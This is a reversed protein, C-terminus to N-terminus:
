RPLGPDGWKIKLKKNECKNQQIVNQEYLMKNFFM